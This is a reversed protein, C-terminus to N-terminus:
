ESGGLVKKAADLSPAIVLVSDAVVYLVDGEKLGHYELWEKPL